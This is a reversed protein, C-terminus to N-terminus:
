STLSKNMFPGPLTVSVVAPSGAVFEDCLATSTMCIKEMCNPRYLVEWEEALAYGRVRAPVALRFGLPLEVCTTYARDNCRSPWFCAPESFLHPSSTYTCVTSRFSQIPLSRLLLHPSNRPGHVRPPQHNIVEREMTNLYELDNM